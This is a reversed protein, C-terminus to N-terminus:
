IWIMIWQCLPVHRVFGWNTLRRNFFWSSPRNTWNTRAISQRNTSCEEDTWQNFIFGVHCEANLLRCCWVETPIFLLMREECHWLRCSSTRPLIGSVISNRLSDCSLRWRYTSNQNMHQLLKLKESSPLISDLTSQFHLDRFHHVLFHWCSFFQFIYPQFIAFKICTNNQERYLFTVGFCCYDNVLKFRM